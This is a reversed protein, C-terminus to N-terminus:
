EGHYRATLRDLFDKLARNMPGCDWALLEAKSWVYPGSDVPLEKPITALLGSISEHTMEMHAQIGYVLPSYRLIQRPCGENEALIVAGEPLGPMNRHWQGVTLGDPFDQWLPDKRGEETLFLPFCGIERHPSREERAGLALAILQSGMCAGVVMKGAEMFQRILALEAPVDFTPDAGKSPARPGGTLVLLDYGEPSSPLPDRMFQRLVTYGYGREEAWDQYAAAPMAPAHQIILIRITKEM